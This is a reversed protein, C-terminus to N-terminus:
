PIASWTPSAQTNTNILLTSSGGDQRIYLSGAGAIGAGTGSTGDTTAATGALVCIDNVTVLAGAANRTRGGIRIFGNNYRPDLYSDHAAPGELDLGFDFYSAVTSANWDVGFAANATSQATDGGMVALVAARASTSNDGIEGRVAAGAYTASISAAVDWKGCVGFLINDTGTLAASAIINGMVGGGYAPSANTSSGFGAAPKFDGALCQISSTGDWESVIVTLAENDGKSDELLQNHTIGRIEIGKAM